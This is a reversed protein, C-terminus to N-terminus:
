KALIFNHYTPGWQQLIAMGVYKNELNSQDLKPVFFQTTLNRSVGTINPKVCSALEGVEVGKPINPIIILSHSRAKHFKM